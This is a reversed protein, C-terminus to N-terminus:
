PSPEGEPQLIHRVARRRLVQWRAPTHHHLSGDANLSVYTALWPMQALLRQRLRLKQHLFDAIDQHWQALQAPTDAVLVFDDVYRVYHLVKLTHKVFQNLANLYVNAFFQSTLNGVPLGCGPAANCLRKHPPIGAAAAAAPLQGRKEAQVLRQCLMTYLTPRHISNFFNHVDLQLYWGGATRAGPMNERQRMFTQLKGVASHSGRGASNAYSDHIFVPEYLRATM